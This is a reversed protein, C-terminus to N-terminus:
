EELAPEAVLSPKGLRALDLPLTAAKIAAYHADLHPGLALLAAIRQIMEQVYLAEETRLPRGLKEVHRYDLWKKIIPYGGITFAWVEPPVNDWYCADNWWIRGGHAGAADGPPEYHGVGGYRVTVRLDDGRLQEGDIRAPQGLRALEPSATFAIDPRLLDAVRQGLAASAELAAREAPIPIRPWDRELTGANEHRYLPANLIAAVHYFLLTHFDPAGVLEAPLLETFEARLNPMITQFLGEQHRLLLPFCCASGDVYNIDMTHALIAGNDFEGSRRQRRVTEIYLNGPFVQEFFDARKEDLLKTTGEWYLWRDDLPRYAVRVIHDERFGSTRLLEKRTASAEYRSADKMLVPAVEAVQADSLRADFYQRMRTELPKRDISVLDADRSTKVGPFYRAFIQPLMPWSLYSENGGGPRLTFRAREEPQLRVLSNASPDGRKDAESALLDRKEQGQGWLDRYWVEAQGVTPGRRVLTTIATSVTIGVSLADK